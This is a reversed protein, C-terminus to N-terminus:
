ACHLMRVVKPKIVALNQGADLVFGSGMIGFSGGCAGGMLPLATGVTAWSGAQMAIALTRYERKRARTVFCRWECLRSKNCILVNPAAVTMLLRAM